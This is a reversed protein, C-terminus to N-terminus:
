SKAELREVFIGALLSFAAYCGKYSRLHALDDRLEEGHHLRWHRLQEAREEESRLDREMLRVAELWSWFGWWAALVRAARRGIM